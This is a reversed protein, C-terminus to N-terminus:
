SNTRATRPHVMGPGSRAMAAMGQRRAVDLLRYRGIREREGAEGM